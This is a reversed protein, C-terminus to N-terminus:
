LLCCPRYNSGYRGQPLLAGIEDVWDGLIVNFNFLMEISEVITIEPRTARLKSGM